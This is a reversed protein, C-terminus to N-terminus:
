DKGVFTPEPDFGETWGGSQSRALRLIPAAALQQLCAEDDAVRSVAPRIEVLELALGARPRRAARPGPQPGPLAGGAVLRDEGMVVSGFRSPLLRGTVM